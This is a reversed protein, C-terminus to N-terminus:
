DLSENESVRKRTEQILRSKIQYLGLELGVPYIHPNLLRKVGGYFRGLESQALDRLQHISPREYVLNGRRFIPVLLDHYRASAPIKKQVTVDAIGVITRGAPAGNLEDFIMDAVYEQRDEFRRVQLSGPHSVKVAQESLKVKKQWPGNGSRIAGLKYVGGLAPQDFATVLKTGVGWLDILAGQEKLSAIVHEDLDNSALIQTANFGAQDLIHRAAISLYNLDGSDLRIGALDKGISRLHHGVEVAHQIGEISDYTDVLFVCAGPMAQAYAEFAEYETPFAMVWSHAHTGRVPIGFVKGALVNSTAFCGGIYAARSAALAGDSGHARRLGFEIVPSGKAALCIRASKTAILTQFNIINLLATEFLQGQLLSGSVRLLPEHPFVVSGEPIAHIDCAFRLAHLYDLFKTEFLPAGDKGRLEALYALDDPQFEFNQLYDIADSLGCTIAYGGNFPQQRFSLHFIAEHELMQKKWYGYAMTLQYLDTLLTPPVRDKGTM